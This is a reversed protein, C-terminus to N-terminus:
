NESTHLEMYNYAWPTGLPLMVYEPHEYFQAIGNYAGDMKTHWVTLERQEEPIDINSELVKVKYSYAEETSNNELILM